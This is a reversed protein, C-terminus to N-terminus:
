VWGEMINEIMKMPTTWGTVLVDKGSASKVCEVSYALKKLEGEMESGKEETDTYFFFEVRRGNGPEVGYKRLNELLKAVGNIQTQMSQLFKEEEVFRKKGKKKKLFDFM